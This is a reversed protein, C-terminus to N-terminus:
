ENRLLSAAARDLMWFLNGSEPNVFQAPFDDPRFEGELVKRVAEAKENGAVVFMVNTAGNIASFTLTLRFSNLKEVWNAVALREIELLGPTQPFLSATHADDGLGLLVLDIPRGSRDFWAKLGTEYDDAADAANARESQWRHIQNSSINLPDLLTEKAMRYNSQDSDPPVHREDGFFFEVRSWEVKSNYDTSSLLSYLHRPTSGGALAVSFSGRASIAENAIRVFLGSAM